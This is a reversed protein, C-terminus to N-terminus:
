TSFHQEGTTTTRSGYAIVIDKEENQDNNQVMNLPTIIVGVGTKLSDAYLM